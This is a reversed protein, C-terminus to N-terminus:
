KYSADVLVDSNIDATQETKSVIKVYFRKSTDGVALNKITVSGQTYDFPTRDSVLISYKDNIDLSYITVNAFTAESNNLVGIEYTMSEKTWIVPPINLSKIINELSDSYYHYMNPKGTDDPDSNTIDFFLIGYYEGIFDINYVSIPSNYIDDKYEISVTNKEGYNIENLPLAYTKVLPVKEFEDFPLLINDNLKIQYKAKDSDADTITFSLIGKNLAAIIAVSENVKTVTVSKTSSLGKVDTYTFKLTNVGIEFDAPDIIYKLKGNSSESVDGSDILKDKLETGFDRTIKYTMDDGEADDVEVQVVIKNKHTIDNATVAIKNIVPAANAPLSLVVSKISETNTIAIVYDLTCKKIFAQKFQTSTIANIQKVTNGTFYINGINDEVWESKSTDYYKWTKRGDFSLYVRATESGTITMSNINGYGKLMFHTYDTTQLISYNDITINYDDDEIPTYIHMEKESLSLYAKTGLGNIDSIDEWLSYDPDAEKFPISVLSTKSSNFIYYLGGSKFAMKRLDAM